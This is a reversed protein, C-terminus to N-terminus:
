RRGARSLEALDTWGDISFADYIAGLHKKLAAPSVAFEDECAQRTGGRIAYLAIKKQLMTLSTDCVFDIIEIDAARQMDLSFLLRPTEDARDRFLSKVARVVLRGAAVPITCEAAPLNVLQAALDRAFMPATRLTGNMRVNQGLLHASLLWTEAEADIGILMEGHIDSIFHASRSGISTWAVTERDGSIAIKVLDHVPQAAKTHSLRFPRGATNWGSFLVRGQGHLDIRVDLMFEHGLPGSLYKYVNSKLYLAHWGPELARGINPLEPRLMGVMNVETPDSFLAEFNSVFFDKIEAPACDHFFGMPQGHENQWFVSASDADVLRRFLECVPIAIAEIGAGSLCLLELHELLRRRAIKNLVRGSGFETKRVQEAYFCSGRRQLWM